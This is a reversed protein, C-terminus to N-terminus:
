DIFLHMELYNTSDGGAEFYLRKKVVEVILM